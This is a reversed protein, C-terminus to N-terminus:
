HEKFYFHYCGPANHPLNCLGALVGVHIIGVNGTEATQAPDPLQKTSDICRLSELCVGGTQNQYQLSYKM